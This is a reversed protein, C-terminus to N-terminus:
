LISKLDDGIEDFAIEQLNPIMYVDGTETSEFLLMNEQTTDRRTLLRRRELYLALLYLKSSNDEPRKALTAFLDKAAEQKERIGLSKKERPVVTKWTSIENELSPAECLSCADFRLIAGKEGIALRSTLIHGSSFPRGCAQCALGRKPVEIKGIM